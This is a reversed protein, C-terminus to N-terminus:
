MEKSSSEIAEIENRLANIYQATAPVDKWSPEDWRRVVAAAVKLLDNRQKTVLEIEAWVERPKAAKGDDHRIALCAEIEQGRRVHDNCYNLKMVQGVPDGNPM